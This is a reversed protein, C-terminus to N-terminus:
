EDFGGFKLKGYAMLAHIRQRPLRTGGLLYDYMEQKHLDSFVETTSCNHMKMVESISWLLKAITINDFM